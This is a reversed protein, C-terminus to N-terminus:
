KETRFARARWMGIGMILFAIAFSVFTMLGDFTSVYHPPGNDDLGIPLTYGHLPDSVEPRNPIIRLVWYAFIAMFPLAALVYTRYRKV